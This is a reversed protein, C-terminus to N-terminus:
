LFCRSCGGVGRGGGMQLGLFDWLGLRKKKAKNGADWICSANVSESNSSVDFDGHLGRETDDHFKQGVARIWIKGRTFGSEQAMRKEEKGGLTGFRAQNKHKSKPVCGGQGGGETRQSKDCPDHQLTM